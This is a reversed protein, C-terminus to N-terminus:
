ATPARPREPYCVHIAAPLVEHFIQDARLWHSQIPFRAPNVALAVHIHISVTSASHVKKSYAVTSDECVDNYSHLDDTMSIAFFLLVLLVIISTSEKACRRAKCWYVRWTYVLGVAVLAWVINLVVEM